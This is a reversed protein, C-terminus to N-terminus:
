VNEFAGLVKLTDKQANSLGAVGTINLGQYPKPLELTKICEGTDVDWLKITEDESGSAIIHGDPHFVASKVRSTHGTLTKLCNGTEIDWVKVTCDESSSLLFKNNSHFDVSRVWGSHGELVILSEGTDVDWVRVTNDEGGSALLTSDVNFAVARVWKKHGYLTKVCTSSEIDWIRITKSDSGCAIRKSDSSFAIAWIRNKEQMIKICQGTKINWVRITYDESGSAIIQNSSSFAIARIINQHGELTNLCQLTSADWIRVIQDDGASVLVKGDPSFAVTWIRSTDQSTRICKGSKLDWIRAVGDESGSAILKGDPAFAVSSVWHSYGNLTSLCHGTDIDWIKIVCDEGGSILSKSNPNFSVSRVRQTHDHFTNICKGTSLGWLKVTCDESGSALLKGDPSFSVSRVRNSHGHLVRECQGSELNWIRITLDNSGSALTKGGPNYAITQVWDNHGQLTNCCEGTRLDWIKITQDDSGSAVIHDGNCFVVSRVRDTHGTLTVFCEGTNVNWAKITQDESGSVLFKNNPSFAISRAQHIHGHFTKLCQGTQLDWIKITQDDSTSAILNGDPSFAIALIWGTHGRYIAIQQQDAVNWLRVDGQGEGAAFLDGTPNFAISTIGNFTQTFISKSIVSNSFDVDRLIMGQLYAQSINLLSFDFDIVQSDLQCILNFVNGAIYGPKQPNKERVMSLVQKFHQKIKETDGITVFLRDILPQVILRIQSDRVYDKAMAKLLAHRNFLFFEKTRIEENVQEVFQNTIYNTFEQKNIQIEEGVRNVLNETIFEILVPQLTFRTRARDLPLRKQLSQLTSSLSIKAQPFVIDDKLDLFTVPERDIALWYLIEKEAVSLRKFHWDLLESLDKFVPRGEQLFTSIDGFFVEQIHRATLELALPNGNYYNILNKWDDDKGYFEGIEDFLLRGSRIDLGGLELSRVPKQKGEMRSIELPKERSTLILCSQHNIEGIQKLLVGYNEYGDRYQVPHSGGQLLSEFNDMILLCRHKKLYHILRMIQKNEDLLDGTEEQNSLFKIVEILTEKLPPANLLRRWIVYDFQDQIGEAFKASLNSKGIGGRGLKVSLRTKGTGGMGLVSVIRCHEQLIWENLTELEKERGFFTTSDPAAGWDRNQDIQDSLRISPLKTVLEPIALDGNGLGGPAVGKIGALLRSFAQPTELGKRFDVWSRSKLFSPVSDLNAGPLLVAMVRKGESVAMSLALRMEENHWPSTGTPGVFVAISQSNKLAKELADQWPEGPILEWHDYFPQLGKQKLNDATQQVSIQDNRNYSLFVDYTKSKM